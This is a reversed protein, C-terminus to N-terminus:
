VGIKATWHGCPISGLCGKDWSSLAWFAKWYQTHCRSHRMATNSAWHIDCQSFAVLFPFSLVWSLTKKLFILDLWNNISNRQNSEHIVIRFHLVNGISHFDDCGARINAFSSLANFTWQIVVAFMTIKLVKNWLPVYISLKWTWYPASISYSNCITIQCWRLVVPPFM